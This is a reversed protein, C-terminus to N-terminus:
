ARRSGQAGRLRRRAAGRGAARALMARSRRPRGRAAERGSVFSTGEGRESAPYLPEEVVVFDEPRSRIAFRSPEREPSPRDHDCRLQAVRRVSAGRSPQSRRSPADISRAVARPARARRPASRHRLGHAARLRLGPYRPTSRAADVADRHVKAVISAAAIRATAARRGPHAVDAADRRRFRARTSWCHDPQSRALSAVARRMAELAARYINWRDIETPRVGRRDAVGIAAARIAAALRERPPRRSAAELRRSRPARRADPLVVAAAVVPGALPGVGVEDVGAVGRVGARRLVRRAARLLRRSGLAAGARERTAAPAAVCSARLARRARSRPGAACDDCHSGQSRARSATARRSRAPAPAGRPHPVRDRCAAPAPARIPSRAEERDVDGSTRGTAHGLAGSSRACAARWSPCASRSAAMARHWAREEMPRLLRVRPEGAPVDQSCRARARRVRRRRDDSSRDVGAQAM